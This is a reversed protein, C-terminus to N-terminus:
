LRDCRVHHRFNMLLGKYRQRATTQRMTIGTYGRYPRALNISGNVAVVDAPQPQNIDIPQLLNDGRSGVYSVDIVGRKYLQKQLGVNWQQTHPTIFPDSTAQLSRLAVTGPAIGVAPNAM